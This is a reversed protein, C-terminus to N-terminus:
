TKVLTFIVELLMNKMDVAFCAVGVDAAEYTESCRLGIQLYFILSFHDCFVFM